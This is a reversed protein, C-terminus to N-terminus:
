KPPILDKLDCGFVESIKLLTIYTPNVCGREIDQYHKSSLGRSDLDEQTLGNKLRLARM